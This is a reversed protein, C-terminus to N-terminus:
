DNFSRKWLTTIRRNSSTGGAAIPRRLHPLPVPNTGLLGNPLHGFYEARIFSARYSACRDLHEGVPCLNERDLEIHAKIAARDVAALQTPRTLAAALAPPEGIQGIPPRDRTSRGPPGDYCFVTAEVAM